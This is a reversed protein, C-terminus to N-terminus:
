KLLSEAYRVATMADEGYFDAKMEDAYEKTLVAGGVMVKVHPLNTKLLEVSERMAPVTTTMLASLGVLQANEEKAARLIDESTVDHGLDVVRYGYNELLSVVINKGIDHIDGKVTALVITYKSISETASMKSKVAAFAQKAADASMLLQPLFITKQEFGKGVIDLAPVIDEEVIQMTNKHEIAELALRYADEPLGKVIANQLSGKETAGTVSAPTNRVMSGEHSLTSAYALYGKCMSDMGSLTLYSHYANMMAVSAPNM